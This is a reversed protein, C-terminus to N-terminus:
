FVKLLWTLLTVTVISFLTSYFVAGALYQHDARFEHALLSINVATPVGTGLILVEAADGEFGFWPVLLWGIVPAALLRLFLAGTLRQLLGRHDTKALQVGLTFLAVGIMANSLYRLPEWVWPWAQVPIQLSKLVLAIAVAWLTGQRLVPLWVKWGRKGGGQSAILLGATFTTINQTLLVFVQLVPGIGPYALTMLPLGYNGSNYFMAAMQLSRRAEPKMGSLRGVLEGLVFLSVIMALCFLVVRLAQDGALSSMTIQVFIFAPVVVYLNLRVLTRLDFQVKRDLLCGLGIIVFIPLCIDRFVVLVEM